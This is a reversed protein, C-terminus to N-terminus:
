DLRALDRQLAKKGELLVASRGLKADDALKRPTCKIGKDLDNILFFFFSISYAGISLWPYCCKHIAAM